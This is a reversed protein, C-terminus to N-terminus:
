PAREYVLRRSDFPEAIQKTALMNDTIAKLASRSISVKYGPIGTKLAAAMVEDGKAMEFKFYSQAIALAESFNGPDQIFAEADRAAGILAEVVHPSRDILEQTVVLNAAAGNTAYLEAPERSESGRYITKCTKLVDCLAGSPEFSMNADVQKSILAGYATNPSGVAVFTFDEAKLGVKQAMLIFHIEAGSTRAPVGIKRGKLDAMIAPYGKDSNRTILDHRLAILYVNLVAGGLIAKLPAGQRMMANIQVEPPLFGVDIMKALLAQAGLPGSPIMQLQCTIGHKDCYGKSIAIRFLMNGIGPYDQIKIIEGKGQALAAPAFAAGLVVAIAALFIRTRQM